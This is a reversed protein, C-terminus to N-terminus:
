EQRKHIIIAEAPSQEFIKGDVESILELRKYVRIPMSSDFRYGSDGIQDLCIPKVAPLVYGIWFVWGRLLAVQSALPSCIDM